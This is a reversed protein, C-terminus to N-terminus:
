KTEGIVYRTVPAKRHAIVCVTKDTKEIVGAKVMANTTGSSVKEVGLAEAIQALSLPSKAARLTDVIDTRIKTPTLKTDKLATKGITYTCVERVAEKDVEITDAKKIMGTSVMANTTGTSVKEVGIAKAIQALTMPEKSAKLANIIAIRTDNMKVNKITKTM